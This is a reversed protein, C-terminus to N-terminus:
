AQGGKGQGPGVPKSRATRPAPAAAQIYSPTRAMRTAPGGEFITRAIWQVAKALPGQGDHRAMMPPCEPCGDPPSPDGYYTGGWYDFEALEALASRFQGFRQINVICSYGFCGTGKFTMWEGVVTSINAGDRPDHYYVYDTNPQLNNLQHWFAGKLTVSHFGQETLVITPSGSNIGKKQDAIAIRKEADGAYYAESIGGTVFRSAALAIGRPSLSGNFGVEGPYFTQMYQLIAQQSDASGWYFHEWMQVNTEGCYLEEQQSHYLVSLQVGPLQPAGQPYCGPLALIATGLVMLRIRM